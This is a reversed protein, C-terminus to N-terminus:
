FFTILKQWKKADVGIEERLENSAQKLIEKETKGKCMGAPIQLIEEEWVPRWEKSLYINQKDDLAVVAVADSSIISEWKLVKGDPLKIKEEEIDAWIGKYKIKRSIIKPNM